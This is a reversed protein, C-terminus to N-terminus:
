CLIENDATIIIEQPYSDPRVECREAFKWLDGCQREYVLVGASKRFTRAVTAMGCKTATMEQPTSWWKSIFKLIKGGVCLLYAYEKRDNMMDQYKPYDIIYPEKKLTHSIRM